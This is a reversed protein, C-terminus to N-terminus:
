SNSLRFNEQLFKKKIPNGEVFIYLYTM